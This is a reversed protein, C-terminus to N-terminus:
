VSVPFTLDKSREEFNLFFHHCPLFHKWPTHMKGMNVTLNGLPHPTLLSLVSEPNGLHLPSVLDATMQLWTNINKPILWEMSIKRLVNWLFLWKCCARKGSCLWYFLLFHIYVLSFDLGREVVPGEGFLCCRILYHM